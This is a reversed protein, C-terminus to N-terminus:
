AGFLAAAVVEDSRLDQLDASGRDASLARRLVARAASEFREPPAVRGEATAHEVHEVGAFPDIVLETTTSGIAMVRLHSAHGEALVTVTISVPVAGATGTAVLFAGTRTAAGPEVRGGLVRAWGVADRLAAQVGDPAAAAEIVILRPAVRGPAEIARRLSEPLLPREVLVPIGAELPEAWSPDPDAVIVARAGAEAAETMAAGWDGEGAVVVIAGTRDEALRASVPLESVANRYGAPGVVVPVREDSM